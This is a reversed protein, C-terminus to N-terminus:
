ENNICRFDTPSISYCKKFSRAFNRYSQFGSAYAVDIVPMPTSALLACAYKLRLNHLFDLFTLGLSNKIVTSLYNHSLGFIESLLTLSLDEKFNSYIYFIIDITHHTIHNNSLADREHTQNKCLRDFLILVNLIKSKVSLEWWKKRAVFEEYMEQFEMKLKDIDSGEFYFNSTNNYGSHLFLEKLDIAVSGAGLFNDMSIGVFFYKVKCDSDFLVEHTQWPYIISFYGPKLDFTEQNILEKGYGDVVYAFEVFNHSHISISANYSLESYRVNVSEELTPFLKPFCSSTMILGGYVM